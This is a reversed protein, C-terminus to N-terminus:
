LTENVYLALLSVFIYAQLASICLELVFIVSITIYLFPSLFSSLLTFYSFMYVIIHGSSLNTRLRVMLTFPRIVQSFVEILPLLLMLGVPSGYPLMHSLFARFDTYCVCVILPIWFLLSLTLTLSYFMTPISNLPINGLLNVALLVFLLYSLLVKAALSTSAEKVLVYISNSLSSFRNAKYFFNFRIVSLFLLSIFLGNLIAFL